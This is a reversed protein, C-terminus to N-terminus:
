NNSCQSTDFTCDSACLLTGGDYGLSECSAGGLDNTDCEEGRDLIGNGCISCAGPLQLCDPDDCDILGDGDDDLGNNCIEGSPQEIRCDSSCGDGDVTNGDDCEEGTELIGNGCISCAGPVQFCDPDECDVLGDGDDDLDNNCIEGGSAYCQSTDFTCEQACLLTGGAFGLSQCTEGGLDGIDCEEGAERVGNGCLPSDWCPPTDACVPDECDILGNGDDDRGNACDSESAICDPDPKLCVGYQVLGLDCFGDGYFGLEACVDCGPALDLELCPDGGQQRAELLRLKRPQDNPGARDCSVGTLTVAFILAAMRRM